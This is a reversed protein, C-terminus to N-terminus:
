KVITIVKVTSFKSDSIRIFYKGPQLSATSITYELGSLATIGKKIMIKGSVDFISLETLGSFKNLKLHIEENAPNPYLEVINNLGILEEVPLTIGTTFTYTDSWDSETPTYVKVRWYLKSEAPLLKAEPVTYKTDNIDKVDLLKSFSTFDKTEAVQLQYGTAGDIASWSFNPLRAINVANNEPKDPIPISVKAPATTFNWVESWTSKGGSNKAQVRWYYKKDNELTNPTYTISSLDVKQEAIGGFNIDESIQIDYKEAGTSSNWALTVDLPMDVSNKAPYLLTPAAPAGSSADTLNFWYTYNKSTGNVKINTINVTYKVNNLVSTSKWKMCTPIGGGGNNDWQIETVPLINNSPDRIEIVAQSYDVNSNNWWKTKDYIASFSFLWSKDVLEPPYNNHPFAVFEIDTDSINGDLNDLFKLAMVNVFNYTGKKPKGDARGFSIKTVFPNIIARRHGLATVNKDIMWGNIAKLSSNYAENFMYYIYLNSKQTGYDAQSSFCSWNSPLGHQIQGEAACALAGKSAAEDGAYDYVVPKLGHIKRIKNIEDLVLMKESEKLQGESCGDINPIVSYIDAASSIENNNGSYANISLFTCLIITILYKM